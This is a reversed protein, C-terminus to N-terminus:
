SESGSAQEVPETASADPECVDMDGAERVKTETAPAVQEGADFEDGAQVCRMTDRSAQARRFDQVHSLMEKLLESSFM